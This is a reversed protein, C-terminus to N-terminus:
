NTGATATASFTIAGAAVASLALLVVGWAILRDAGPLRGAVELSRELRTGGAPAAAVSEGSRSRALASAWWSAGGALVLIVGLIAMIAAIVSRM